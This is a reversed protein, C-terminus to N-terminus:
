QTKLAAFADDRVITYAVHMIARIAVMDQEALNYNGVTAEELLKYNIDGRMGVISYQWDGTVIQDTTKNIANTYSIPQGYLEDPTTQQLSPQFLPYGQNDKLKRLRNKMGNYTVFGNVNYSDEEVLGMVDSIDEHLAQGATAGEAIHKGTGTIVGMLSKNYISDTGNIAEDDFKRMFQNAIDGKIESIVDVISENVLESSFPVIIGLKKTVLKVPTFEADDTPIKQGEGVYYAQVGNLVSITKESTKMPEIRSLSMVTSGKAVDSVINTSLEAPILGEANQKLTAM